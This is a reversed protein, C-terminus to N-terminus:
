ISFPIIAKREKPYDKFQSKYWKHHSIARPILNAMTWVLFSLAPLNWAVLVFGTWEIIEGLFNPCSVYKFLGGYPISYGDKRTKRLAFLIRDHYQNIFFGAVFLIVGVLFRPDTLWSAEYGASLNALWYGNLGANVANFFVAFTMILVPMKKGKTKLRLPFIISRHFYHGIWMIAVILIVVDTLAKGKIVLFSFILLSPIEMLFWGLKNNIMPGWNTKAHRGYPATIFLQIPVLVIALTMWALTIYQFIELTMM